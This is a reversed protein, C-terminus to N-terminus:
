QLFPNSQRERAITTAQGHGPLVATEAPLALLKEKIGTILLALDKGVAKGVGGCFLVDGVFVSGAAKAYLCISGPSHGPVCFVHFDVGAYRAPGERNIQRIDATEVLRELSQVDRKHIVFATGPYHAKLLKAGHVHDAHGHTFVVVEPALERDKLFRLLPNIDDLGTDIVLCVKTEKSARVCYCNTLLGGLMLVDVVVAREQTDSEQRARTEGTEADCGVILLCVVLLIRSRM